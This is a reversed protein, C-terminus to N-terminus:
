RVSHAPAEPDDSHSVTFLSIKQWVLITIVPAFAAIADALRHMAYSLQIVSLSFGEERTPVSSLPSFSSFFLFHRTRNHPTAQERFFFYGQGPYRGFWTYALPM